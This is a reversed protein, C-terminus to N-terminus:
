HVVSLYRDSGTRWKEPLEAFVHVLLQIIFPELLEWSMRLGVDIATMQRHMTESEVSHDYQGPETPLMM